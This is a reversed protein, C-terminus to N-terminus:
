RRNWLIQQLVIIEKYFKSILRQDDTEQLSRTKSSTVSNVLEPIEISQSKGRKTAENALFQFISQTQSATTLSAINQKASSVLKRLEPKLLFSYMKDNSGNMFIDTIIGNILDKLDNISPYAGSTIKNVIENPILSNSLVMKVFNTLERERINPVYLRKNVVSDKMQYYMSNTLFQTAYGIDLRMSNAFNLFERSSTFKYNFISEIQPLKSQIEKVGKESSGVSGTGTLRDICKLDTLTSDDVLLQQKINVPLISPDEFKSCSQNILQILPAIKPPPLKMSGNAFHDYFLYNLIECTKDTYETETSTIYFTEGPSRNM